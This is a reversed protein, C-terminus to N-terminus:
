RLENDTLDSPRSGLRLTINHSATAMASLLLFHLNLHDWSVYWRSLVLSHILGPKLIDIYCTKNSDTPNSHVLFFM